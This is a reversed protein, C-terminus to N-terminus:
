LPGLGLKDVEMSMEDVMPSRSRVTHRINM